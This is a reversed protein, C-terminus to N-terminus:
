VNAHTRRKRSPMREAQEVESCEDRKRKRPRLSKPLVDVDKTCRSRTKPLVEAKSLESSVSEESDSPEFVTSTTDDELELGVVTEDTESPTSPTADEPLGEPSPPTACVEEPETAKTEAKLAIEDAAAGFVHRTARHRNLHATNRCKFQCSEGGKMIM